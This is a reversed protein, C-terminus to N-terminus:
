AYDLLASVIRNAVVADYGQQERNSMPRFAPRSGEQKVADMVSLHVATASRALGVAALARCMGGFEADTVKKDIPRQAELKRYYANLLSVAARRVDERKLTHLENPM